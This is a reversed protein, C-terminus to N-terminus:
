WRIYTSSGKSSEKSSDNVETNNTAEDNEENSDNLSSADYVDIHFCLTWHNGKATTYKGYKIEGIDVKIPSDSNQSCIHWDGDGVDASASSSINFRIQDNEDKGEDGVALLIDQDWKFVTSGYFYFNAEDFLYDVSSDNVGISNLTIKDLPIYISPKTGMYTWIDKSDGNQNSYHYSDCHSFHRSFQVFLKNDPVNSYNTVKLFVTRDGLPPRPMDNDSETLGIMSGTSSISNSHNEEQTNNKSCGVLAVTLLFLMCFHSYNVKNKPKM